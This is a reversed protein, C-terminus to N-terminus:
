LIMLYQEICGKLWEYKQVVEMIVKMLMAMVALMVIEEVNKRM